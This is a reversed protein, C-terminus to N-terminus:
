GVEEMFPLYGARALRHLLYGYGTCYAFMIGAPLLFGDAGIGALVGGISGAALGCLVFGFSGGPPQDARVRARGRHTLLSLFAGGLWAFFGFFFIGAALLPCIAQALDGDPALYTALYLAGLPGGLFTALVTTLQAAPSPNETDGM